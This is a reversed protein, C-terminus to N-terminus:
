FSTSNSRSVQASDTSKQGECMEIKSGRVSNFWAHNLAEEATLRYQLDPEIMARLLNWGDMSIDDQKGYQFLWPIGNQIEERVSRIDESNEFPFGGVMATFMAIGISWIDAKETHITATVIEPSAYFITGLFEQSCDETQFNRAFGFDCLVVQKPDFYPSFVLINELKIDGHWLNQQHLWAVASLIRWFVEKADDENMPGSSQIHDFLDGGTAYPLVILKQSDLILRDQIQIIHPHKMQPLIDFERNVQTPDLDAAKIIVTEGSSIDLAQYISSDKSCILGQILYHSVIDGQLCLM